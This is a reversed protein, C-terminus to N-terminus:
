TDVKSNDYEWYVCKKDVIVFDPFKEKIYPIGVQEMGFYCGTETDFVPGGYTTCEMTYVSCVLVLPTFM